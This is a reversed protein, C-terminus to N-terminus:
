FGHRTAIPVHMQKTVLCFMGSGDFLAMESLMKAGMKAGWAEHARRRAWRPDCNGSQELAGAVNKKKKRKKAPSFNWSKSNVGNNSGKHM